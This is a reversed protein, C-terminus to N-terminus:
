MVSCCRRCFQLFWLVHQNPFVVCTFTTGTKFAWIFSYTNWLGVSSSCRQSNAMRVAASLVCWISSARSLLLHNV